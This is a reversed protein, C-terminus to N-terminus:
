ECAFFLSRIVTSGPLAAIFWFAELGSSVGLLYEEASSLSTLRFLRVNEKQLVTFRENRSSLHFCRGKESSFAGGGQTRGSDRKATEIGARSGGVKEEERAEALASRSRIGTNRRNLM